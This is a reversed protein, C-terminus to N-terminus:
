KDINEPIVIQTSIAEKLISQNSGEGSVSTKPLFSIQTTEPLPSKAQFTLTAVIGEGVIGSTNPATGIAYSIRGNNEDIENLLAVPKPFFTGPALFVTTLMQPDYSIELQVATVKNKKASIHIPISYAKKAGSPSSFTPFSSLIGFRLETQTLPEPTPSPTPIPTTSYSSPNYVSIMVLMFAVTFLTFILTFTRKSM